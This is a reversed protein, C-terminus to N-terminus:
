GVERTAAVPTVGVMAGGARRVVEWSEEQSERLNAGPVAEVERWAVETSVEEEEKAAAAAAAWWVVEWWDVERQAAQWGM